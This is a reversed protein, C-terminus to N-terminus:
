LRDQCRQALYRCRTEPMPVHMRPLGCEAVNSRTVRNAVNRGNGGGGGHWALGSLSGALPWASLRQQSPFKIQTHTRLNSGQRKEKGKYPCPALTHVRGKCLQSYSPYMCVTLCTPTPGRAKFYRQPPGSPTVESNHSGYEYTQANRDRGKHSRGCHGKTPHLAM